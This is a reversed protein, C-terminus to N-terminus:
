LDMFCTSIKKKHKYLRLTQWKILKLNQKKNKNNIFLDRGQLANADKICFTVSDAVQKGCLSSLWGDPELSSHWPWLKRYICTRHIKRRGYYVNVNRSMQEQTFIFMFFVPTKQGKEATTEVNTKRFKEEEMQGFIVMALNWRM